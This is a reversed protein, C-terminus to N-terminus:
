SPTRWRVIKWVDRRRVEAVVGGEAKKALEGHSELIAVAKKATAKDRITYPGRRYIDPLSVIPESWQSRLWVLLKEALRLDANACSAGHLRLAETAYYEALVVGCEMHWETIEGCYLDDVTALVAALRAAHEPLKNGLAKVPELDGGPRLDLEVQDHFRVFLTEARNSLPLARPKLENTKGEELPMPRELISLIRAGYRALDRETNEAEPRWLRAGSTGPPAACLARSLLGQATLLSDAFLIDSVEPQLMTHLALRRGYLTVAGDGARVRRIPQGDWMMSLATATMLKNDQSMAYGGLFQGGENSFLGLSPQGEAFLKTLGQISPEDFKLMPNLPPTPAPGIADLAAKIAAREGNSKKIATERAKEWGTGDNTYNPLANDYEERLAREHKALPWCAQHDAASKREGSEAVTVFFNSVPKEQGQGIPLRVNVHSQAAITAVALLSQAGIAMPAQIRDHIALAAPGLIDSLADVPFATAPAMERMLPQPPEPNDIEIRIKSEHDPNV